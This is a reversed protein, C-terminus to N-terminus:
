RKHFFLESLIAGLIYDSHGSKVNTVSEGTIEIVGAGQQGLIVPFVIRKKSKLIHMNSGCFGSSLIKVQVEDAKSPDVEVEEYTSFCKSDLCHSGSM